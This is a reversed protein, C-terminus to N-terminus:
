PLLFYFLADIKGKMQDCHSKESSGMLESSREFSRAMRENEEQTPASLGSAAMVSANTPNSGTDTIGGNFFFHVM